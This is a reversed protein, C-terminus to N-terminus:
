FPFRSFQLQSRFQHQYWYVHPSTQQHVWLWLRAALFVFVYLLIQITFFNLILKGTLTAHRCEHDLLYNEVFILNLIQLILVLRFVHSLCRWTWKNWWRWVIWSQIYSMCNKLIWCGTRGIYMYRPLPRHTYENCNLGGKERGGGGGVVGGGFFFCNASM